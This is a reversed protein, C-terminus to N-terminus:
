RVSSGPYRTVQAQAPTLVQEESTAEAVVEYLVARKDERGRLTRGLRQITNAGGLGDLSCSLSVPKRCMAARTSCEPPQGRSSVGRHPLRQLLDHREKVTTHHTIAPLQHMLDLTPVVILTCQQREQMALWAGLAARQHTYLTMELAPVLHLPGFAPAQDVLPTGEARFAEVSRRLLRAPLRLTRPKGHCLRGRRAQRRPTCCCPAMTSPCHRHVLWSVDEATVPTMTSTM